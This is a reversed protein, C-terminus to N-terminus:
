GARRLAALIPAPEEEHPWHGADVDIREASPLHQLWRDRLYTPFATDATGWAVTIPVQNLTDLRAELRRYFPASTRLAGSLPWLVRVRREFDPFVSTYQSAVANWQARDKFASPAITSLSLNRAGYLWRGVAGDLMWSVASFRAEDLPWAWTNLLVVRRIRDLHDLIWPLAIPGGYDHVVVVVDRLDLSDAFASFRQAHDEPRYSASAPAESLGFGLHDVAICRAHDALGALLHRWEFSWTPTGHSFLFPAGSGVDAYHMRGDQSPFWQAPWPWAERDLWQM